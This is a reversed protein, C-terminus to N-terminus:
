SWCAITNPTLHYMQVMMGSINIIIHNEGALHDLEHAITHGLTRGGENRRPQSPFQVSGTVVALASVRAPITGGGTSDASSRNGSVSVDGVVATRAADEEAHGGKGYRLQSGCGAR